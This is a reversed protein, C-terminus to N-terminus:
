PTALARGYLSLDPGTWRCSCVATWGYEHQQNRSASPCAAPECQASAPPPWTLEPWFGADMRM